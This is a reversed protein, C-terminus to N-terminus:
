SIVDHDQPRTTRLIGVPSIPGSSPGPTEEEDKDSEQDHTVTNGPHFMSVSDDEKHMTPMHEKPFLPIHMTVAPNQKTQEQLKSAKELTPEDTFNLDNDEALLNALEADAESDAERTEPNWKAKAQRQLAEPTFMKLNFSHGSDRLFPVLGAILNNAESANEPHFQFNVITDSKFQCDITHFLTSGPKDEPTIEMLIQRFSKKTTPDRRDLLLNTSIERTVASALGANLAAQRALCSAFKTKNNMSSVLNITPVLRMKTGDPFRTSSSSYWSSLKDRVEQLRDVSCKVHLAKVKETEVPQDKRRINGSTSRIPKWKVGLNEETIESLLTSIREEDQARTSYLLRGADITNENDTAKPWLSFDSSELSYKAKTMFQTFPITQALIISCWSIGEDDRPSLHFFYKKIVHYSELSSVPFASSLDTVSKDNRDLELYPPIITKVDAQLVIELFCQLSEMILQHSDDESKAKITKFCLTYRHIHHRTNNKKLMITKDLSVAQPRSIHTPGEDGSKTYRNALPIKAKGKSHGQRYDNSNTTCVNTAVSFSVNRTQSTTAEQDKTPVPIERLTAEKVQLSESAVRGAQNSETLEMGGADKHNDKENMKTSNKPPADLTEKDKTSEREVGYDNPPLALPNVALSDDGLVEEIEARLSNDMLAKKLSRIKRLTQQAQRSLLKGKPSGGETSVSETEKDSGAPEETEMEQNTQEKDYLNDLPNGEREDQDALLRYPNNALVSNKKPPSSM